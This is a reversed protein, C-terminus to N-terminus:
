LRGRLTADWVDSGVRIKLGGLVESRVETRQALPKGFHKELMAFISKGGDELQISSIVEHTHREVELKALQALRGLVQLYGRPRQKAILAVVKRLRSEDLGKESRCIRFLTKAEARAARNIKM